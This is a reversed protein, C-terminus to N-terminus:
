KEWGCIFCIIACFMFVLSSILLLMLDLSAISTIMLGLTVGLVIYIFNMLQSITRKICGIDFNKNKRDKESIEKFIQSSEPKNEHNHKSDKKESYSIDAAVKTEFLVLQCFCVSVDIEIDNETTNILQLPIVAKSGPQIFDQTCKVMLGLRSISSRGTVIACINAPLEIIERTTALIFQKSKIIITGNSPLEKLEFNSEPNNDYMSILKRSKMIKIVPNIHLDVSGPGVQKESCFKYGYGSNIKILGESIYKKIESDVLIM